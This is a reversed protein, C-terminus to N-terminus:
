QARELELVVWLCHQTVVVCIQSCLQGTRASLPLSTSYDNYVSGHKGAASHARPATVPICDCTYRLDCLRRCYHAKPSSTPHSM